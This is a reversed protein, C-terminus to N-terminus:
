SRRSPAALRWPMARRVTTLARSLEDGAGPQQAYRQAEYLSVFARIARAQEPLEAAAREAFSRAGEGKLRRIGQRALLREFRDFQRQQVDKERRWPKFLVLALIGTLLGLVAVLGLGLAQGDLKGFWRQLM